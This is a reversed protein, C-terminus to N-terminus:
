FAMHETYIEFIQYKASVYRDTVHKVKVGVHKGECWVMIVSGFIVFPIIFM